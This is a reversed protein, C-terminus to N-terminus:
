QEPGPDNRGEFWNIFRLHGITAQVGQLETMWANRSKAFDRPDFRNVAAALRVHDVLRFIPAQKPVSALVRSYTPLLRQARPIWDINQLGRRQDTCVSTPLRDAMGVRILRRDIGDYNFAESPLSLCFEIIRRDAAPARSEFKGQMQGTGFGPNRECTRAIRRERESLSQSFLKNNNRDRMRAIIASTTYAGMDGDSVGRSALVSFASWLQDGPRNRVMNRWRWPLLHRGLSSRVVNVLSENREFSIKRAQRFLDILRGSRALDSLLGRGDYSITHNGVTGNLMVRVGRQSAAAYIAHYGAIYTPTAIVPGDHQFFERDLFGLDDHGDAYLFTSSINPYLASLEEVKSRESEYSKRDPTPRLASPDPILTFGHLKSDRGALVRAASAAIAQSDLGGSLMIGIPHAVDCHQAVVDDFLERFAENYERHDRFRLERIDHANWYRGVVPGAEDVTLFHGPPVSQISDYITVGQGLDNRLLLDVYADENLERPVGDLALLGKIATAFSFRKGDWHYYIPRYGAHDTAIILRRREAQYIACAFNGVLNGAFDDGWRAHARAVLVSEPMNQDPKIGLKAFLDPRNDIRGCHLVTVDEHLLPQREFADRTTTAFLCHVWGSNDSILSSQQDPGHVALSRRMRTLETIDVPGGDYRIIGGIASM